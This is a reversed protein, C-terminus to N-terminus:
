LSDEGALSVFAITVAAGVGVCSVYLGTGFELSAVLDGNTEHALASLRMRADTTSNFTANNSDYFTVSANVAGASLIASIACKTTSYVGSTGGKVYRPQKRNRLLM